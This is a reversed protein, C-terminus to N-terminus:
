KPIMQCNKGYTHVNNLYAMANAAIAVSQDHSYRAASKIVFQILHSIAATQFFIVAASVWYLAVNKYVGHQTDEAVLARPTYSFATTFVGLVLCLALLNPYNLEAFGKKYRNNYLASLNAVIQELFQFSLYAEMFEDPLIVFGSLVASGIENQIIPLFTNHMVKFSTPLWGMAIVASCIGYAMIGDSHSENRRSPLDNSMVKLANCLEDLTWEANLLRSERLNVSSVSVDTTEIYLQASEIVSLIYAHKAGLERQNRFRVSSEIARISGNIPFANGIRLM